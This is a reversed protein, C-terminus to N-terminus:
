CSLDTGQCAFERVALLDLTLSSCMRFHVFQMVRFIDLEFVHVSEKAPKSLLVFIKKRWLSIEKSM